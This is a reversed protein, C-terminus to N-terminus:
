HLCCSSVYVVFWGFCSVCDAIKGLQTKPSLTEESKFNKQLKTFIKIQINKPIKLKHKKKQCQATPDEDAIGDDSRIVECIELDEESLLSCV